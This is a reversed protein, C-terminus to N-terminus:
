KKKKSKKKSKLKIKRHSPVYDSYSFTKIMYFAYLFFLVIFTYPLWNGFKAYTTMNRKYIPVNFTLASAEFLPQDAIVKGQPNVVVSYGSNSSRVLTTRYEIARYSAIVFHQYESSKTKSWSDDTINVFLEAGNLFMPRM